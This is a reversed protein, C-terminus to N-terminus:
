TFLLLMLNGSDMGEGDDLFCLMFGGRLDEKSDLNCIWQIKWILHSVLTCDKFM